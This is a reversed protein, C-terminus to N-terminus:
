GPSWVIAGLEVRIATSENEILTDCPLSVMVETVVVSAALTVELMAFTSIVSEAPVVTYPEVVLGVALENEIESEPSERSVM